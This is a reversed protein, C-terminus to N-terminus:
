FLAPLEAQHNFRLRAPFTLPGALRMSGRGSIVASTIVPVNDGYLRRYFRDVPKPLGKPLPMTELSAPQQPVATFPAPQFQLGAWGLGALAALVGGSILMVKM